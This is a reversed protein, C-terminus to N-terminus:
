NFGALVEYDLKQYSYNIIKIRAGKISFIEGEQPNFEMDFQINKDPMSGDSELYKFILNGNRIGGFILRKTFGNDSPKTM